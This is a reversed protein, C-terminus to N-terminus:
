NVLGLCVLLGFAFHIMVALVFYRNYVPSPDTKWVLYVLLCALPLILLPYIAAREYLSGIWFYGLFFPFMTLATLEWLGFRKGLRVVMTYKNIGRDEEQDRFNNLANPLVAFFGMQLSLLFSYFDFHGTQLYFTSGVCVFGYFILIFIESLGLYCIPYPGGTYCYALLNSIVLILAIIWGGKVILPIGFLIVLSVCFFGGGMVQKPTLFGAPIVKLHGIRDLSDGGKKFDIADNFLNVAITVFIGVMLTCLALFWDLSMQTSYALVLGSIVQISPISLTRLRVAMLWAWLSNPKSKTLTSM